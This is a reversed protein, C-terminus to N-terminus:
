GRQSMARAAGRRGAVGSRPAAPRQARGRPPLGPGAGSRAGAAARSGQAPEGRGAQAGGGGPGLMSVASFSHPARPPSKWAMTLSMFTVPRSSAPAPGRPRRTAAPLRAGRPRCTRAWAHGAQTQQERIEPSGPRPLTLAQTDHHGPPGRPRHGPDDPQLEGTPDRASSACM